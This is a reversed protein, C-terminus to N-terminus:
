RSDLEWAVTESWAEISVGVTSTVAAFPSARLQHDPHASHRSVTFDLRSGQWPNTIPIAVPFRSPTRMTDIQGTNDESAM